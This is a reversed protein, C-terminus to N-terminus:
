TEREIYICDNEILMDFKHGADNFMQEQQSGTDRPCSKKNISQKRKLGSQDLLKNVMIALYLLNTRAHGCAAWGNRKLSSFLEIFINNADKKQHTEQPLARARLVYPQTGQAYVHIINPDRHIGQPVRGCCHTYKCLTHFQHRIIAQHAGCAAPAFICM